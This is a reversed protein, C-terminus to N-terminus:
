LTVDSEAITKLEKVISRLRVVKGMAKTSHFNYEELECVIREIATIVIEFSPVFIKGHLKEYLDQACSDTYNPHNNMQYGLNLIFETMLDNRLASMGYGEFIVDHITDVELIWLMFVGALNMNRSAYFQLLKARWEQKAQKHYPMLGYQPSMLYELQDMETKTIKPHVQPHFIADLTPIRLESVFTNWCYEPVISFYYEHCRPGSFIWPFHVLHPFHIGYPRYVAAADNIQSANLSATWTSGGRTSLILIKAKFATEKSYGPSVNIAIIPSEICNCHLAVNCNCVIANFIQQMKFIMITYSSITMSFIMDIRQRTHM